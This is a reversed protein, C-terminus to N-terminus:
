FVQRCLRIFCVAPLRRDFDTTGVAEAAPDSSLRAGQDVFFLQFRLFADFIFPIDALFRNKRWATEHREVDARFRHDPQHRVFEALHSVFPRFLPHGHGPVLDFLVLPRDKRRFYPCLLSDDPTKAAIPRNSRIEQPPIM